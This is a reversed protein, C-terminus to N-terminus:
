DDFAQTSIRERPDHAAIKVGPVGRMLAQVVSPPDRKQTVDMSECLSMRIVGRQPWPGFGSRSRIWRHRWRVAPGVPPAGGRRRAPVTAPTHAKQGGGSAWA